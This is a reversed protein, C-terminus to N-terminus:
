AQIGALTLFLIFFLLKARMLDYAFSINPTRFILPIHHEKLFLTIYFVNYITFSIMIFLVALTSIHMYASNLNDRVQEADEQTSFFDVEKMSGCFAEVEDNSYFREAESASLPRAVDSDSKKYLFFLIPYFTISEGDDLYHSEIRSRVLYYQHGWFLDIYQSVYLIVLGLM